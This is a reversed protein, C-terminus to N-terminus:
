FSPFLKLESFESRLGNRSVAAVRVFIKSNENKSLHFRNKKVLESSLIEGASDLTEVVYFDAGPSSTWAVEGNMADSSPYRSSVFKPRSIMRSSDRTVNRRAARTESRSNKSKQAVLIKSLPLISFKRTDSMESQKHHNDEAWVSWSYSGVTLNNLRIINSNFIKKDIVENNSLNKVRLYYISAGNVHAWSLFVAGQEVDVQHFNTGNVPFRLIPAKLSRELQYSFSTIDSTFYTTSGSRFGSLRSFYHGAGLHSIHYHGTDEVEEAFAANKFEKDSAVELQLKVLRSPNVWEVDFGPHASDDKIQANQYPTVISPATELLVKAYSIKSSFTKFPSKKQNAVLQWYYNGPNLTIEFSGRAGNILQKNSYLLNKDIGILLKVDFDPDLPEWEFRARDHHIGELYINQTPIPFNVKLQRESIAYGEENLEVNKTKDVLIPQLPNEIESQGRFVELNALGRSDSLIYVDSDRLKILTTKFKIFISQNIIQQGGKLYASGSKLEVITKHNLEQIFLSTEPSIIAEAGNSFFLEAVNSKDTQLADGFNVSEGSEIENWFYRGAALRRAKGSQNLIKAVFPDTELNPDSRNTAELYVSFIYVSVLGLVSLAAIFKSHANGHSSRM